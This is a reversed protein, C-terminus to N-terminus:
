SYRPKFGFSQFNSKGFSKNKDEEEQVQGEEEQDRTEEKHGEYLVQLTLRETLLLKMTSYTFIGLKLAYYM